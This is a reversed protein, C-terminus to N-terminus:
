RFAPNFASARPGICFSVRFQDWPGPPPRDGSGPAPSFTVLLGLDGRQQFLKGHQALLGGVVLPFLIAVLQDLTFILGSLVFRISYMHVM